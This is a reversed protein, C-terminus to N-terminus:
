LAALPHLSVLDSFLLTERMLSEQRGIYFRVPMELMRYAKGGAKVCIRMKGEACPHPAGHYTLGGCASAAEGALMSPGFTIGHACLHQELQKLLSELPTSQRSSCYSNDQSLLSGDKSHVCFEVPYDPLATGAM